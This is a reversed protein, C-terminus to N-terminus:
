THDVSTNGMLNFDAYDLVGFYLTEHKQWFQADQDNLNRQVLKLSISVKKWWYYNRAIFDRKYM